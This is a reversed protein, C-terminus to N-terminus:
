AAAEKFMNLLDENAFDDLNQARAMENEEEFLVMTPVGTVHFVGHKKYPHDANGRWENRTVSAVIVKVKGAVAEVVEKIKPKAVVCDPCWSSGDADMTGTFIVLLFGSKEALYKDWEEMMKSTDELKIVQDVM